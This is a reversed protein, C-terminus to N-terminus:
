YTYVGDRMLLYQPGWKQRTFATCDMELSYIDHVRDKILLHQTSPTEHSIKHVIDPFDRNHVGYRTLFIFASYDMYQTYISHTGCTIPLHLPTWREYIFATYEM